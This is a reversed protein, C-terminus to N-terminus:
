KSTVFGLLGISTCIASLFFWTGDALLSIRQVMHKSNALFITEIGLAGNRTVLQYREYAEQLARWDRIAYYGFIAMSAIGPIVILLLLLNKKM